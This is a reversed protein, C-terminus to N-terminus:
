LYKMHDVRVIRSFKDERCGSKRNQEENAKFNKDAWLILRITQFYATKHLKIICKGLYNM